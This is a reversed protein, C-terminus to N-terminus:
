VTHTGRGSGRTQARTNHQRQRLVSVIMFLKTCYEMLVPSYWEEQTALIIPIDSGIMYPQESPIEDFQNIITITFQTVM